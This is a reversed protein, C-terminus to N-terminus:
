DISYVIKVSITVSDTPTAVSCTVVVSSEATMTIPAVTATGATQGHEMNANLTSATHTAAALFADTDGVIGLQIKATAGTTASASLRAEWVRAEAPLKGFYITDTAGTTATVYTDYLVRIKGGNTAVETLKAPLTVHRKKYNVAYQDAM